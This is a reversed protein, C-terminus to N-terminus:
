GEKDLLVGSADSAKDLHQLKQAMEVVEEAPVQRIVEKTTPNVIQFYYIGTERDVRYNVDMSAQQLYGKINQAASELDAQSPANARKEPGTAKSDATKPSAKPPISTASQLNQAMGAALSGLSSVQEAM